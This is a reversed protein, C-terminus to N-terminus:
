LNTKNVNNITPKNKYLTKQFFLGVFTLLIFTSLFVIFVISIGHEKVLDFHDIIGVGSPVFCVGMNSIAWEITNNIRKASLINFHLLLTFCILGYLSSPLTGIAHAILKGLLVCLGIAVISYIANKM